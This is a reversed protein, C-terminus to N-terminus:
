KSRGTVKSKYQKYNNEAFCGNCASPYVVQNGNHTCNVCRKVIPKKEILEIRAM